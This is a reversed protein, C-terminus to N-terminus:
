ALTAVWGAKALADIVRATPAEDTWVQERGHPVVQVLTGDGHRATTAGALPTPLPSFADSIWTTPGFRARAGSRPNLGVHLPTSVWAFAPEFTDVLAIVNAEAFGRFADLPFAESVRIAVTNYVVRRIAATAGGSVTVTVSRLADDGAFLTVSTGRDEIITGRDDTRRGDVFAQELGDLDTDVEEDRLIGIPAEVFGLFPELEDLLDRTRAALEAATEPRPGWSAQVQGLQAAM